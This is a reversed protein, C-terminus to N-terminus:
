PALSVDLCLCNFLTKLSSCLNSLPLPLRLVPLPKSVPSHGASLSVTLSEARSFLMTYALTVSFPFSPLTGLGPGWPSHTGFTTLSLFACILTKSPSRQHGGLQLALSRLSIRRFRSVHHHHHKESESRLESGLTNPKTM